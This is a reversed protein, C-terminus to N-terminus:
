DGQGDGGVLTGQARMLKRHERVAEQYEVTYQEKLEQEREMNRRSVLDQPTSGKDAAERVLAEFAELPVIRAPEFSWPLDHRARGIPCTDRLLETAEADTLQVEDGFGYSGARALTEAVVLEPVVVVYSKTKEQGLFWKAWRESTAALEAPLFNALLKFREEDLADGNVTLEVASAAEVVKVSLDARQELLQRLQNLAGEVQRDKELRAAVVKALHNQRDTREATQQPNPSALAEIEAQLHGKREEFAARETKNQQLEALVMGLPFIETGRGEIRHRLQAEKTKELECIKGDCYGILAECRKRDQDLKRQALWSRQSRPSYGADTEKRGFM